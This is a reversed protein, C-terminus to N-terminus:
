SHPLAAEAAAVAGPGQLLRELVRDRAAALGTALTEDARVIADAVSGVGAVGAGALPRATRVVPDPDLSVCALTVGAARHARREDATAAGAAGCGVRVVASRWGSAGLTRAEPPRDLEAAVLKGPAADARLAVELRRAQEARAEGPPGCAAVTLHVADREFLRLAAGGVAVLLAELCASPSWPHGALRLAADPTRVLCLHIARRTRRLEGEDRRYYLLENELLRLAFWDVGAVAAEGAYVLESRVVNELSGRTSLEALGGQPYTGEDPLATEAQAAEAGLAGPPRPAAAGLVAGVEALQRAALRQAATAFAPLNRLEFLDAAGLLAPGAEELAAAGAAFWGALREDTDGGLADREGAFDWPLSLRAAALARLERPLARRPPPPLAAALRAAVIELFRAVLDDPAAEAAAHRHLEGFWGERLLPALARDQYCIQRARAAADWRPPRAALASFAFDGGELVLWGLDHVLALPLEAGLGALHAAWGLARALRAPADPAPAAAALAADACHRAACLVLTRLQRPPVVPVAAVGVDPAAVAPPSPERSPLPSPERSPQPSPERSPQPSPVRSPSSSPSPPRRSV